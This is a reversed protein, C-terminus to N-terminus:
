LKKIKKYLFRYCRFLFFGIINGFIKRFQREYKKLKIEEETKWSMSYHHISRTNETITVIGTYYNMPGFYEWPYITIGDIMQIRNKEEYGHRKLINTVREVVTTAMKTKENYDFHSTRYDDIIEKYLGLGPSAALGLGAAVVLPGKGKAQECGMFPSKEVLDDISRILEVDTDFYLGGYKYLIDFRAYDSVFAWKKKEYAEKVYDCSCIDYNDENWEIIKYDPCYKKWSYICKIAEDTLPNRGFWCYHIIKPIM